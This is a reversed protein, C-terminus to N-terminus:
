PAHSTEVADAAVEASHAARFAEMAETIVASIPRGTVQAYALLWARLDEPPRWGVPRYRHVNPM